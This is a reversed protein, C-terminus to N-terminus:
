EKRLFLIKEIPNNNEFLYQKNVQLNGIIDSFLKGQYSDLRKKSLIIQYKYMFQDNVYVLAYGQYATGHALLGITREYGFGHKFLIQKLTDGKQTIFDNFDQELLTRALSNYNLKPNDKALRTFKIRETSDKANAPLIVLETKNNETHAQWNPPACVIDPGSEFVAWDSLELSSGEREINFSTVQVTNATPRTTTQQEQTIDIQCQTFCIILSAALIAQLLSNNLSKYKKNM